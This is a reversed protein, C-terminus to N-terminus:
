EEGKPKADNIATRLGGSAENRTYPGGDLFGLAVECAALLSSSASLINGREDCEERTVGDVRCVAVEGEMVYCHFRDAYCASPGKKWEPTHKDKSM